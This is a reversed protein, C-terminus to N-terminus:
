LNNGLYAVYAHSLNVINVLLKDVILPGSLTRLYAHPDAVLLRLFIPRAPEFLAIQPATPPDITPATRPLPTGMMPVIM